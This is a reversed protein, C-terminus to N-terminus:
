GCTPCPTDLQEAVLRLRAALLSSGAAGMEIARKGELEVVGLAEREVEGLQHGALLPQGHIVGAEVHVSPAAAPGARAACFFCTMSTDCISVSVGVREDTRRAPSGPATTSTILTL